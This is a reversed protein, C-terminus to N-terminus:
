AANNSANIKDFFVEFPTKYGLIKRPRHNLKYQVIAIEQETVDELSSGKIFYQRILGNTHENLGREWSHYPHAFYISTDLEKAIYEHHSFEKGNDLTITQVNAKYPSLIEIIAQDVNVAKKDAVKAILTFKSHRDVMTVLAGKHNKGIILDGEFDGIRIKQEVIDPRDDISVRNLIQGRRDHKGYRKRYRKNKHRLHLYLEGGDEKNNLLYRYITEHSIRNGTFLEWRGSIQEPSSDFKTLQYLVFAKLAETVKMVKPKTAHREKAKSDAQKPRYGKAGRNRILERSVTSPDVKIINAVYRISHKAKRLAYIQYRQERTLQKYKRM